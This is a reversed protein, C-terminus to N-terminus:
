SYLPRPSFHRAQLLVPSNKLAINFYSLLPLSSKINHNFASTALRTHDLCVCSLCFQKTMWTYNQDRVANRHLKPILNSPGINHRFLQRWRWRRVCKHCKVNKRSRQGGGGDLGSQAFVRSVDMWCKAKNM